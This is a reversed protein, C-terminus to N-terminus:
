IRAREKAEKLLSDIEKLDELRELDAMVTLYLEYLRDEENLNLFKNTSLSLSYLTDLADKSKM